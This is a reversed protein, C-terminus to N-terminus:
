YIRWLSRFILISFKVSGQEIFEIAFFDFCIFVVCISFIDTM